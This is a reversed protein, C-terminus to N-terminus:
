GAASQGTSQCISRLTEALSAGVPTGWGSVADYGPTAAYGGLHDTTNDGGVIDTCSTAGVPQAGRGNTGYLLPTLFGVRQRSPLSANILTLLAAVLPTAASTGGSPKVAGRVVLLYPSAIWDANASLDPLCRGM